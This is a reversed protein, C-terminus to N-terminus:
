IKQLLLGEDIWRKVGDFQNANLYPDNYPMRPVGLYGDQILVRYLSSNEGDGIRILPESPANNMFHTIIENYDVLLINAAPNNVTHCGSRNSCKESFLPYIHDIFNLNSDPLIINYVAVVIYITDSFGINEELDIAKAFIYHNNGDAWNSIEWSFEYPFSDDYGVSDGDIFFTVKEVGINDTADAKIIIDSIITDGYFPYTINVIPSIDDSLINSKQPNEKNCNLFLLLILIINKKIFIKM